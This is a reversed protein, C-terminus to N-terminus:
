KWEEVKANVAAMVPDDEEVRAQNQENLERVQLKAHDREKRLQDMIADTQQVAIKMKNYEDTMNEMEKVSEELNKQLHENESKLNAAM